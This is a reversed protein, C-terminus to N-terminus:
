GLTSTDILFWYHLNSALVREYAENIRDASIVEIEAGLDHEPCFDLMEQDGRHQQDDLRGVLPPRQDDLLRARQAATAGSDLPM